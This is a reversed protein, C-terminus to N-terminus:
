EIQLTITAEITDGADVEEAQRIAKKVPLIYASAQKSPFLSTAWESTGISVEVRVSGFGPTNPVLDSIEDSMEEPLTVFIWTTKESSFEWLEGSFRFSPKEQARM